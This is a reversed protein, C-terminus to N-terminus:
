AEDLNPEDLNAASSEVRNDLSSISSSVTVYVDSQPRPNPKTSQLFAHQEVCTRRAAGASQSCRCLTRCHRTPCEQGILRQASFRGAVFSRGNTQLMVQPRSVSPSCSAIQSGAMWNKKKTTAENVQEVCKPMVRAHFLDVVLLFYIFYLFM